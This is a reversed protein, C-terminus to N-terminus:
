VTEIKCAEYAPTLEKKMKEFAQKEVQRIREISVGFIPAIDALVMPSDDFYRNKIIFRERDNLKSLSKAITNEIFDQYELIELLKDPSETSDPIDFSSDEEYMNSISKFSSSKRLILEQIDAISINQEKSMKEIDVKNDVTYKKINFFAKKLPHTTLMKVPTRLEIDYNIIAKEIHDMCYSAFKVGLSPDFKEACKILVINGEQIYDDLNPHNYGRLKIAISSVLRLHSKILDEKSATSFDEIM